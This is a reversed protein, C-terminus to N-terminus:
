SGRLAGAAEASLERVRLEIRIDEYYGTSGHKMADNGEM